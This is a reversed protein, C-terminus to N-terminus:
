DGCEHQLAVYFMIGLSDVSHRPVCHRQVVLALYSAQEEQCGERAEVGAGRKAPNNGLARQSQPVVDTM